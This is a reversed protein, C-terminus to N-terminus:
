VHARGIKDNDITDAFSVGTKELSDPDLEYLTVVSGKPMGVLSIGMETSDLTEPAMNIMALGKVSINELSAQVNTEETPGGISQSTEETSGGLSCAVFMMAFLTAIAFNLVVALSAVLFIRLSAMKCVLQGSIRSFNM